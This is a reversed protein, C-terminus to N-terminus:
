VMRKIIRLKHTYEGTQASIIGNSDISEIKVWGSSHIIQHSNLLIGVHIIKGNANEFFALDGAKAETLFDIAKGSEVQESADRDLQTGCMSFVVQVLGSCDIGLISKGGWLYPAHLYQLAQQVVKQKDTESKAVLESGNIHFTDDGVILEDRNTTRIISGGPLFMKEGTQTKDCLTLPVQVIYIPAKDLLEEETSSLLQVMKRDVWGRYHDSLNRVFLWRERTELIEVREGFLLQTYLESRENDSERLPVLPLSILANM